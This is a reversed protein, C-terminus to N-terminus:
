TNWTIATARTHCPVPVRLLDGVILHLVYLTIQRTITIIASRSETLSTSHRTLSRNRADHAVPLCIIWCSCPSTECPLHSLQLMRPSIEGQTAWGLIVGGAERYAPQLSPVTAHRNHTVTVSILAMRRIGQTLVYEELMQRV